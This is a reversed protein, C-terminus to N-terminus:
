RSGVRDGCVGFGNKQVWGPGGANLGMLDYNVPQNFPAKTSEPCLKALGNRSAPVSMFGHGLASTTLLVLSEAFRKM